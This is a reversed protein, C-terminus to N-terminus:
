DEYDGTESGGRSRINELQEQKVLNELAKMSSIVDKLKGLNAMADKASYVPKGDDDLLNFNVQRFYSRLKQILDYADKLLGLLPTENLAKYKDIAAQVDKDPTYNGDKFHSDKVKQVREHYDYIAYPSSFDEVYYIFEFDKFAKNKSKSKDRDWLKKFEPVNIIEPSIVIKYDVLDFVKM